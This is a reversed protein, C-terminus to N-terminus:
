LITKWGSVVKSQETDKKKKFDDFITWRNGMKGCYTIWNQKRSVAISRVNEKKCLDGLWIDAMNPIPFDDLSIKLLSTDILCSSTAVLDVETDQKLELFGNYVIRNRYYSSVPKVIRVGHLGVVSQHEQSKKILYDCFDNPYVVDDDVAFYYHNKYQDINYFKAADGLRNDLLYTEIRERKLFQPVDLYNNLGVIIKDVQNYLSDITQELCDVRDPLSAIGVIKEKM